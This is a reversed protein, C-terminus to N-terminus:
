QLTSRPTEALWFESEPAEGPLVVRPILKRPQAEMPAHICLVGLVILVKMPM